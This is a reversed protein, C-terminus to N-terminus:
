QMAVKKEQTIVTEGQITDINNDARYKMYNSFMECVKELEFKRARCFRVLFQDTMWPNEIANMHTIALWDKFQRFIVIQHDTM